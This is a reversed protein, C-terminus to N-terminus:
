PCLVNNRTRFSRIVPHRRPDSSTGTDYPPPSGPAGCLASETTSVSPETTDAEDGDTVCASAPIALCLLMLTRM